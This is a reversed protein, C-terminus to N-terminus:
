FAGGRLFRVGLQALREAVLRVHRESEVSCPGCMLAPEGGIGIRAGGVDVSPGQRDVLPHAPKSTTVASIGDIMALEDASAAASYPAIVFHRTGGGAGQEVQSVWLGRSVLARLVAASDADQKLSVIM